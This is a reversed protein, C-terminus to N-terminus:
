NFKSLKLLWIKLHDRLFGKSCRNAQQNDLRTFLIMNLDGIFVNQKNFKYIDSKDKRISIFFNTANSQHLYQVHEQSTLLQEQFSARFIKSFDQLFVKVLAGIM